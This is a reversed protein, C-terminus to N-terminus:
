VYRWCAVYSSGFKILPPSHNACVDKKYPCRSYFVCGPPKKLQASYNPIQHVFIDTKKDARIVSKLLMETYPHKPEKFIDETKGYEMLKGSYIILIKDCLQAAVALDHTILITSINKERSVRKLLDLIQAQVVVDLNTTPEDAIVLKPNNALAICIVIRQRMGGSLEHPFSSYTKEPDKIKVMNLLSLVIDKSPPLKKHAKIVEYIQEGVRMTPNLASTPDQFILSIESGYIQRLESRRMELLNKGEFYIAGDIKSNPPLLNMIAYGITSKGSGSEGVLGLIENYDVSFSLDRVAEIQAGRLRYSVSLNEVKLLMVM